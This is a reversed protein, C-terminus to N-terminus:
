SMWPPSDEWHMRTMWCCSRSWTSRKPPLVASRRCAQLSALAAQAAAWVAFRGVAGVAGSVLVTQGPKVEASDILQVGTLGVLPIAAAADLKLNAPVKALLSAKVACLEAYTHDAWAFVEEDVSFGSTGAGLSTVTGALDWGLIAPFSLPHSSSRAGARFYTDVPNVGAASIRVLIEGAGPAPDPVDEYKLVEPSGYARIIAAKM